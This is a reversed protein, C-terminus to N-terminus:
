IFLYDGYNSFKTNIALSVLNEEKRQGGGASRVFEETGTESHKMYFIEGFTGIVNTNNKRRKKKKERSHPVPIQKESSVALTYFDHSGQGKLLQLAIPQVFNFGCIIAPVSLFKSFM